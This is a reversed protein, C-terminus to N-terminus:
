IGVSRPARRTPDPVDAEGVSEVDKTAVSLIDRKDRSFVFFDGYAGYSDATVPQTRGDRYRIKFEAM